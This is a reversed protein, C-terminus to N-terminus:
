QEKRLDHKMMLADEVPESYYNKRRGIEQFGIKSYLQYAARNTERVELFITELNNEM